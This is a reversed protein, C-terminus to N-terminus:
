ETCNGFIADQMIYKSLSFLSTLSFICLGASSYLLPVMEISRTFSANSSALRSCNSIGAMKFFALIGASTNFAGLARTDTLWNAWNHVTSASLMFSSNKPMSLWAMRRPLKLNSEFITICASVSSFASCFMRCNRLKTKSSRCLVSM